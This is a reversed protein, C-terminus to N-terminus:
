GRLISEKLAEQRAQSDMVMKVIRQDNGFKLMCGNFQSETLGIDRLASEHIDGLRQGM